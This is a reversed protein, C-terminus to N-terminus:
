GRSYDNEREAARVCARTSLSIALWPGNSASVAIDARRRAVALEGCALAAQAIWANHLEDVGPIIIEVREFALSADWAKAADGDALFATAAASQIAREFLDPCERM